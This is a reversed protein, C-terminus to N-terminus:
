PENANATTMEVIPPGNIVRLFAAGLCADGTRWQMMGIKEVNLGLGDPFADYSLTQHFPAIALEGNDGKFVVRVNSLFVTGYSLWQFSSVNASSGRSGGVRMRMGHGLPLYLAPNTSHYVRQSVTQGYQARQQWYFKEGGLPMIGNPLFPTMQGAQIKALSEGIERERESTVKAPRAHAGRPVLAAVLPVLWCIPVLIVAAIVWGIPSRGKYRAIFYTGVACAVWFVLGVYMSSPDAHAPAQHAHKAAIATLLVM